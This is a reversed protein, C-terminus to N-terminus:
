DLLPHQRPHQETFVTCIETNSSRGILFQANLTHQLHMLSFSVYFPSCASCFRAFIPTNNKVLLAPVCVRVEEGYIYGILQEQQHMREWNSYPICPGLWEFGLENGIM